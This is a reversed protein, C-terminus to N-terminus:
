INLIANKLIDARIEDKNSALVLARDSIAGLLVNATQEEIKGIEFLYSILRKATHYDCGNGIGAIVDSADGLNIKRIKIYGGGGRRSEVLYGKDASFRTAIVYNIQSPVCGFINALDNRGFEAMEKEDRMLETIFAEIKDSIGMSIKTREQSQSEKVKIIASNEM